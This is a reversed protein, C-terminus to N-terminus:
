VDTDKEPEPSHASSLRATLSAKSRVARTKKAARIDQEIAGVDQTPDALDGLEKSKGIMWLAAAYVGM